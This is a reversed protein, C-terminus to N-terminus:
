KTKGIKSKIQDLKNKIPTIDASKITASFDIAEPPLPPGSPGVGTPHTHTALKSLIKEIVALIEDLRAKLENGLVLPETADKGIFVQEGEGNGKENGSGLIIKPGDIFVEGTSDIAIVGQDVSHEGKDDRQGEKLIRISGAQAANGPDSFKGDSGRPVSAIIRVQSSRGILYPAEAIPEFVSSQPLLKTDEYGTNKDGDTKMSVYVRSLDEIFNPDGERLNQVRKGNEKKWSRRDSEFYGLTNESIPPAEKDPVEEESATTIADIVRASRGAVIDITGALASTRPKGEFTQADPYEVSSNGAEEEVSPRDEGLCILTNNSGQLVMDGPRSTFNPTPERTTLRSSPAKTIIDKYTIDCTDPISPTGKITTLTKSSNGGNNDAPDSGTGNDFSLKRESANTSQAAENLLSKERDAFAFNLDEVHRATTIRTMWYGDCQKETPGFSLLETTKEQKEEPDRNAFAKVGGPNDREGTQVVWVREGPKVPFFIHSQFFPYYLAPKKSTPNNPTIDIGIISNRPAVKIQRRLEKLEDFEGPANRLVYPGREPGPEPTDKKSKFLNLFEPRKKEDLDLITLREANDIVDLVLVQQFTPLLPM